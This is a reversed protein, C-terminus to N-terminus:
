RAREQKGATVEIHDLDDEVLRILRLVGFLRDALDAFGSPMDDVVSHGIAKAPILVSTAEAATERVSKIRPAEIGMAM